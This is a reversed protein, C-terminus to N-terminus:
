LIVNAIHVQIQHQWKQYDSGVSDDVSCAGETYTCNQGIFAYNTNNINDYKGLADLTHLDHLQIVILPHRDAFKVNYKEQSTPTSLELYNALNILDNYSVTM